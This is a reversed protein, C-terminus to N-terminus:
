HSRPRRSERLKTAAAETAVAPFRELAALEKARDRRIEVGVSGRIIDLKEARVNVSVVAPHHLVSDAIDRVLTEVLDIHGRGTIIKIADVIVDYSFM